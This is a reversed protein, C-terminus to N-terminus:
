EPLWLKKGRHILTSRLGNIEMIEQYRRGDGLERAAIGWLTDGRKVTYAKTSVTVKCSYEKGYLTATVTATGNAKATLKGNQDVTVITPDSSQCAATSGSNFALAFTQNKRLIVHQRKLALPIFKEEFRNANFAAFSDKEGYVTEYTMGDYYGFYWLDKVTPPVVLYKAERIPAAACSIIGDPLYVTEDRYYPAIGEVLIDNLIISDNEALLADMWPTDSFAEAGISSVREPVNIQTLKECQAFSFSGVYSVNEPLKIETLGTCARFAHDDIRTVSEPIRIETLSVCEAFMSHSIETLGEPLTIDKLKTCRTFLQGGVETVTEPFNIEELSECRQFGSKPLTRITSPLTVKKLNKCYYFCGYGMETVSEPITVETLGYCYKFAEEGIRRVGDPIVVEFLANCGTFISDPLEEIGKPLTVKELAYCGAFCLEGISKVSDPLIVERIAVNWLFAEKRIKKVTDPVTVVAENGRYKILTGNKIEFDETTQASVGTPFLMVTLLVALCIAWLKKM